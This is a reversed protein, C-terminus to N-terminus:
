NIKLIYIIHESSYKVPQKKFSGYQEVMKLDLQKTLLRFYDPECEKLSIKHTFSHHKGYKDYVIYKDRWHKILNLRDINYSSKLSIIEEREPFDATYLYNDEESDSGECVCPYIDFGIRGSHHLVRKVNQLCQIQDELTLLYQFSFYPFIILSFKQNSSFSQMNSEIISIPIDGAKNRLIKLMNPSNDLATVNYGAEALPITLRGTGAGMELINGDSKAAYEKWFAIDENQEPCMFSLEWDYYHAFTNCNTM